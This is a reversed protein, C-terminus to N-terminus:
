GERNRKFHLWEFDRVRQAELSKMEFLSNGVLREGLSITLSERLKCGMASCKNELGLRGDRVM